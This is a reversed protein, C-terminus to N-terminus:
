NKKMEEDDHPYKSNLIREMAMRQQTDHTLEPDDRWPLNDLGLGTEWSATKNEAKDESWFCKGCLKGTVCFDTGWSQVATRIQRKLDNILGVSWHGRNDSIDSNENKEPLWQKHICFLFGSKGETRAAARQNETGATLAARHEWEAHTQWKKLLPKPIPEPSKWAGGTSSGPKWTSQGSNCMGACCQSKEAQALGQMQCHFHLQQHPVTFNMGLIGPGGPKWADRRILFTQGSVGLPTGRLPRWAM